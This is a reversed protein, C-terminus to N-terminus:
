ASAQDDADWRAQAGNRDARTRMSATTRGASGFSLAYAVREKNSKGRVKLLCTTAGDM